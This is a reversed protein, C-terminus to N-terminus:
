VLNLARWSELARLWLLRSLVRFVEGGQTLTTEVKEIRVPLGEVRTAATALQIEMEKLSQNVLSRSKYVAGALGDLVSFVDVGLEAVV